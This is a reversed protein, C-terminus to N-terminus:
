TGGCVVSNGPSLVTYDLTPQTCIWGCSASDNEIRFQLYRGATVGDTRNNVANNNNLTGTDVNNGDIRLTASSITGYEARAIGGGSADDFIVYRYYNAANNLAAGTLPT